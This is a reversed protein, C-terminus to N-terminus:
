GLFPIGPGKWHRLSSILVFGLLVCSAELVGLFLFVSYYLILLSRYEVRATVPLSAPLGRGGGCGGGGDKRPYRGIRKYKAKGGKEEIWGEPGYRGGRGILLWRM